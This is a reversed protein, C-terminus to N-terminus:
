IPEGIIAGPTSKSQHHWNIFGSKLFYDVNFGEPLLVEGDADESETSAVGEVIMEGEEDSAKVIDDIGVYFRFKNEKRISKLLEM